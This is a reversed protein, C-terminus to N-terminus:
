RGSKVIDVRDPAGADRVGGLARVELREASIGQVLLVERVALVRKLSLRRMNSGTDGPKGAYSKLAIRGGKGKFSEAFAQVQAVATQSLAAEDPEFSIRLMATEPAPLISAGTVPDISAPAASQPTEEAPASAQAPEPAAEPASLYEESPPLARSPTHPRILPVADIPMDDQAARAGGPMAFGLGLACVTLSAIARRQFLSIM